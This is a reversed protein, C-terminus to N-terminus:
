EDMTAIDGTHMWGDPRITDATAEPNNYYGMMVLPGRFMMEGREGTPATRDPDDLDAIRVESGPFSIGITGPKNIGYVPNLTGAGSIETMGWLEYVSVGTREKFELSKAAPLTQGGVTAIRLTSFDFEDFNPLALMYYYGTPVVDIITAKHKEMNVLMGEADFRAMMILTSGAIMSANFVVSAYVHPCPLPSVIVDHETRAGMMGFLACNMILSRHSQMAGKPHGTTGSTYCIKGLETGVVDVPSFQDSGSDLFANFSTAGDPLDDGWLIVDKLTGGKLDMLPGGKDPAAIVARSGADNVIYRVEDPTLMVNIPNLVAGMKAAGYYAALWEWCNPGYLTVREGPQIGMAVLGNAVRNSLAELENFSLSRTETVVAIKDGYRAAAEPLITGISQAM